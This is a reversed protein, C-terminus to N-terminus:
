IQEARRPAILRYVIWAILLFVGIIVAMLVLKLAFGVVVVLLAILKISIAFAIISLVTGIVFRILGM